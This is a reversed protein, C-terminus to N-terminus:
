RRRGSALREPPRRRRGLLRKGAYDSQVPSDDLSRDDPERQVRQAHWGRHQDRVLPRQRRRVRDEAFVLAIGAPAPDLGAGTEVPFGPIQTLVGATTVGFAYVLNTFPITRDDLAYVFGKFARSSCPPTTFAKDAGAGTGSVNTARARFHYETNCALGTIGGGGILGTVLGSGMVQVPTVSGYATTLGYQFNADTAAGNPNAAGTLTASTFGIATAAGTEVTPLPCTSTTFTADAGNTTGVVNAAVARFHYLTNCSLGTLVGGGIAVAGNGSGLDQVSTTMGYGTTLGYEFHGSTSVGNPDATGNLTAGFASVVSATGTVVTPPTLIANSPVSRLAPDSRAM